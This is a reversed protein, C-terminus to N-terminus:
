VYSATGPCLAINPTNPTAHQGYNEDWSDNLPLKYEWNGVPVTFVKQWVEDEADFDLHTAACDPQWDGPCGLEDQFSGAVTAATPDATHDAQITPSIGLLILALTLIQVSFIQVLKMVFRRSFPTLDSITTYPLSWPIM